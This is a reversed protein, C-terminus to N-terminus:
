VGQDYAVLLAFITFLLQWGTLRSVVEFVYELPQPVNAAGYKIAALPSTFSTANTDM